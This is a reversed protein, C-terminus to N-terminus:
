RGIQQASYGLRGHGRLFTKASAWRVRILPTSREKLSTDELRVHPRTENTFIRHFARRRAFKMSTAHEAGKAIQGERALRQRQNSEGYQANNASRAPLGACKLQQGRGRCSRRAVPIQESFAETLFHAESCCQNSASLMGLMTSAPTVNTLMTAGGIRFM